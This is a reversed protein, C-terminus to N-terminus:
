KNFIAAYVISGLFILVNITPVFSIVVAVRYLRIFYLGFSILIAVIAVIPFSIITGFVAINFPDTTSGPADFIMPSMMVAPISLLILTLMSGNVAALLTLTKRRRPDNKAAIAAAKRAPFPDEHFKCQYCLPEERTGFNTFLGIKKNCSSCNM